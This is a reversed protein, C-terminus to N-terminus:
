NKKKSTVLQKLIALFLHPHHHLPDKVVRKHERDAEVVPPHHYVVGPVVAGPGHLALLGLARVIVHEPHYGANIGVVM